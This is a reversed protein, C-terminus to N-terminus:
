NGYNMFIPESFFTVQKNEEKNESLRVNYL